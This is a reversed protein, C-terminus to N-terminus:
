RCYKHPSHSSKQFISEQKVRKRPHRANKVSYKHRFFNGSTKHNEPIRELIAIWSIQYEKETYKHM